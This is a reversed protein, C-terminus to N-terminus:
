GVNLTVDPSAGECSSQNTTTLDPMWVTVTITETAGPAIDTGYAVSPAGLVTDFWSALCGTVATGPLAGTVIDGGTGSDVTAHTTTLSASTLAQNGSGANKITFTIVSSTGAAQSAAPYITGVPTSATVDWDAASGVSANGTGTGTSTFYAFAAGGGALAIATTAGIIAVRRKAITRNFVQDGQPSPPAKGM